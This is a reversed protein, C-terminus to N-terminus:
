PQTDATAFANAVGAHMEEITLKKDTYKSLSGGVKLIADSYKPAAHTSASSLTKNALLTELFESFTDTLMKEDFGALKAKTALEDSLQMTITTM